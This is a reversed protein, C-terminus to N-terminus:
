YSMTRGDSTVYTRTDKNYAYTAGGSTPNFDPASYGMPTYPSSSYGGSPTAFGGGMYGAFPSGGMWPAYSNSAVNYGGPGNGGGLSKYAEGNPGRTQPHLMGQDSRVPPPPAPLSVPAAAPQGFGLPNEKPMDTFTIGDFQRSLASPGGAPGFTDAFRSPGPVYGPDASVSQPFSRDEQKWMNKYTPNVDKPGGQPTYYQQTDWFRSPHEYLTAPVDGDSNLFGPKRFPDPSAIGAALGPAGMTRTYNPYDTM